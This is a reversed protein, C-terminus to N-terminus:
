SRILHNLAQKVNPMTNLSSIDIRLEVAKRALEPRIGTYYLSIGLLGMISNIKYLFEGVIDDFNYIGSMDIILYDLHYSGIKRPIINLLQITRDEDFEGVLPLVAIGEYVPVIPTAVENKVQKLKKEAVKRPTIDRLISQIAETEGFMVPHCYLEVEVITADARYVPTEILEGIQREETGKRIREVIFEKYEDTFVDVINAGILNNKTARFFDAGSENIYLIKQNCHIVTTEISYEVIQRYMEEKENVTLNNNILPEDLVVM